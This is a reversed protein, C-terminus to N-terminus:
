QDATFLALPSAYAEWDADSLVFAWGQSDANIQDARAISPAPAGPSVSANITVWGRNANRWATATIVVGDALRTEHVSSRTARGTTDVPMVDLPRLGAIAGGVIALSVPVLVNLDENPAALAFSQGDEDASLLRYGQGVPPQVMVETIETRDVRVPDLDLWAAARQLPPMDQVNVAWAQLDGPRRIYSRGSRYGVILKDFVAGRGDGLELLAGTGGALPDGLGIMDFKRDDRTMPEDFTMTSIASALQLIRADAVPYGGKETLVWGDPNRVLHYTEENTTVMILGLESVHSELDPAVRQGVESRELSVSPPLMTLGALVVSMLAAGALIGLTRRRPDKLSLIM